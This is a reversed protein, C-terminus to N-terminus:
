CPKYLRNKFPLSIFYVLASLLAITSGPPWDLFYSLTLGTMNFLASLAIASIILTSFRHTFLSALTAPITLLAILLATGIVQILLVISISVLVLLLLYISRVPIGRLLAQEEDFCISLLRHYYLILTLILAGDLIALFLLSQKDIWLINGFLYSMLEVNAGPTLSLAIVGIAMGTSWIAGIVADERQRYHLHVYGILLASAIAGLFAGILPSLWELGFTRQLWFCVGMGGLLSHSISGALFSIRKVVVFSGITGSAISALLGGWLAMQLFSEFFM